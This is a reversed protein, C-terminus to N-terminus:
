GLRLLRGSDDTVLWLAGDDDFALGEPKEGDDVPLSHSAVLTLGSAGLTVRVICEGEDSMIWLEGTAPHVAVDSLDPLLDDFEGDLDDILVTHELTLSPWAFVGVARPKDEHVAVLHDRGDFAVAAPLHALGEWGKNAKNKKGNTTAPRPLLGLVELDTGTTSPSTSSSPVPFSVLAGDQERVAIIVDGVRTMGELGAVRDDDDADHLLTVKPRTGGIDVLRIGGEDDAVLFRGSPLAVLASAEGLDARVEELVTLAAPWTTRAPTGAAPRKKTPM